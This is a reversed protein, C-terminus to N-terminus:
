HRKSKHEARDTYSWVHPVEDGVVIKQSSQVVNVGTRSLRQIRQEADLGTGPVETVQM